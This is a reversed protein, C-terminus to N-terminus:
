SSPEGLRDIANSACNSGPLMAPGGSVDIGYRNLAVPKPAGAGRGRVRSGAGAGDSATRAPELQEHLRSIVLERAMTLVDDVTELALPIGNQYSVANLFEEDGPAYV